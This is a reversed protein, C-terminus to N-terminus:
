DIVGFTEGDTSCFLSDMKTEISRNERNAHM